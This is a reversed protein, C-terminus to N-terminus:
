GLSVRRARLQADVVVQRLLDGHEEVDDFSIGTEVLRVAPAPAPRNWVTTARLVLVQGCVTLLVRIATRDPLGPEPLIVRLGGESLDVTTGTQVQLDCMAGVTGPSSDPPSVELTVPAVWPVRFFRRRQVREAPGDIALRWARVAPGVLSRGQYRTPLAHLGVPTPWVVRCSCGPEPGDLDGPRRPAALYLLSPRGTPSPGQPDAPDVDEVRTPLELLEADDQSTDPVISIRVLTNVSPLVETPLAAISSSM